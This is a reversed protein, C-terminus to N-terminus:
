WFERQTFMDWEKWLVVAAVLFGLATSIVRTPLAIHFMEGAANGAFHFLIASLTSRGTRYYIWSMLISTPFFAVFFAILSPPYELLGHQYSGEVFVLPLHWIGWIVSLLLSAELLNMRTRLADLGYGRWGLEEPIPGFVLLFLLFTIPSSLFAQTPQLQDLAGIGFAAALVVSAIKLAFQLFLVVFWWGAGIRTPDVARIWFDRVFGPHRAKHVFYLASLTASIGAIVLLGMGREFWGKRIGIAMLWLPAWTLVFDVSFFPVPRYLRHLRTQELDKRTDPM